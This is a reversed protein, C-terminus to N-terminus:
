QILMEAVERGTALAANLSPYAAWDGCRYLGEALKLPQRVPQGALYVPLAAAIRYTRLHQWQRAAPGFWAALEERLRTTLEAGNLSREGHTCVSVLSKGAPAYAASVDAPFSVNHALANPSANLRLLKDNRGPSHGEAAFYTCTTIRAATPFSAAKVSFGDDANGSRGALLRLATLGDTALVVAAGQLVQGSTLRVQTGEVAAVPTSLRVSGAPLRSALQEPLQQMGLAPIAAEGTVFQQFVFEFFNSATSLGRDLFVGGFFPKFFTNIMQESWGYRRLFTLTDTAPRALLEEPTYKLVHRVLSVIRLKDALTGVPSKLASFAALPRQLPNQLTTEQGDPMRIVAGSRFARLNLAQYDFMRRAEPYNTLLVQFGRDLRFGEATVDTRVRGGVADAADLVLVPRGARHLWTACALGAMGAGVIIIPKSSLIM